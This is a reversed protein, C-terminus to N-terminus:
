VLLITPLTLHTYSVPGAMLQEAVANPEDKGRRLETLHERRVRELEHNPFSPNLVLDATLELATSWHKTLTEASLLTYERRGDASIRSGIFEFAQAIEQSSKTATGEPLMQATFGALGPLQEPDRSAGADMLVGFAVIPLGRQEVVSIGMGNSLKTRAPTPPTFVPESKPPPMVTRDIKIIAPSLTPEPLVRLRVQNDGLVSEAVRLVDDRSVAMYKDLSTNILGPNSSFVSFHNLQDARGGFGGIRALQRYHSAEISDRICMESGM